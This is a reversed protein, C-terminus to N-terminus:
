CLCRCVRFGVSYISDYLRYSVDSQSYLPTMQSWVLRWWRCLPQSSGTVCVYLCVCVYVFLCSSICLSPPLLLPPSVPVVDVETQSLTGMWLWVLLLLWARTIKTDVSFYFSHLRTFVCEAEGAVHQRHTRHMMLQLMFYLYLSCLSSSHTQCLQFFFSVSLSSM